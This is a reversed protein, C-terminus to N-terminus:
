WDIVECLDDSLEVGLILLDEKFFYGFVFRGEECVVHMVMM